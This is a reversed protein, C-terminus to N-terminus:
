RIMEIFSRSPPSRAHLFLQDHKPLQEPVSSHENVPDGGLTLGHGLSSIVEVVVEGACASLAVMSGESMISGTRQSQASGPKARMVKRLEEPWVNIKVMFVLASTFLTLMATSVILERNPGMMSPSSSSRMPAAALQDCRRASIAMWM